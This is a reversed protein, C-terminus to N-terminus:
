PLSVDSLYKGSSPAAAILEAALGAPFPPAFPPLEVVVQGHGMEIICARTTRSDRMSIEVVSEINTISVNSTEPGLLKFKLVSAGGIAVQNTEGDSPEVIQAVVLIQNEISMVKLPRPPPPTGVAMRM